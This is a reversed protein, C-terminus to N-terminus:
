TPVAEESALRGFKGFIAKSSRNFAKKVKMESLVCEEYETNSNFVHGSFISTASYFLTYMSYRALFFM